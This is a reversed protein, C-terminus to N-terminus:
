KPSTEAPKGPEKPLNSEPAPDHRETPKSSPSVKRAHFAAVVQSASGADGLLLIASHNDIMVAEFDVAETALSEPTAANDRITVENANDPRRLDISGALRIAEGEFVPLVEIRTGQWEASRAPTGVIEGAVDVAAPTGSRTTVAPVTVMQVGGQRQLNELWQQVAAEEVLQDPPSVGAPLEFLKGSVYIMAGPNSLMGEKGVLSDVIALNTTTNRVNLISSTPDFEAFASAPFQVGFERLVEIPSRRRVSDDKGTQFVGSTTADPPHSLFNPPVPFSQEVWEDRSRGAPRSAIIVANEGWEIRARAQAAVARLAALFTANTAALKIRPQQTGSQLDTDARVELTRLEPRQLHNYERLMSELEALAQGIPVNDFDIAPLYFNALWERIRMLRPDHIEDSTDLPARDTEKASSDPPTRPRPPVLARSSDVREFARQTSANRSERKPWFYIGASGLVIIAAAGILAAPWKRCTAAPKAVLLHRANEESMGGAGYHGALLVDIRSLEALEDVLASSAELRADLAVVSDDTLVGNLFNHIPSADDM